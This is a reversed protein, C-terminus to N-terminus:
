INYKNTNRELEYQEFDKLKIFRWYGWLGCDNKDLDCISILDSLAHIFDRVIYKEGYKLTISESDDICIITEGNKFNQNFKEFIKFKIIM